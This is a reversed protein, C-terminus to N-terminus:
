CKTGSCSNGKSTVTTNPAVIPSMLPDYFWNDKILVSVLSESGTNVWGYSNIAGVEVFPAVNSDVMDPPAASVKNGVINLVDSGDKSQPSVTGEGWNSFDVGGTFLAPIAGLGLNHAITSIPLKARISGRSPYFTNSAIYLTSSGDGSNTLALNDSSLNTGNLAPSGETTTLIWHRAVTATAPVLEASQVIGSWLIGNWVAKGEADQSGRDVISIQDGPAYDFSYYDDYLQLEHPGLARDFPLGDGALHSFFSMRNTVDIYDDGLGAFTSYALVFSAHGSLSLIGGTATLPNLTGTVMSEDPIVNFFTMEVLGENKEFGSAGGPSSYITDNYLTINTNSVFHLPGGGRALILM